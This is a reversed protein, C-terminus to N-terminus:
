WLINFNWTGFFYLEKKNKKNKKNMIKNIYQSFILFLKWFHQFFLDKGM